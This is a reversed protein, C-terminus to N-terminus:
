TSMQLHRPATSLSTPIYVAVGKRLIYGQSFRLDDKTNSYVIEAYDDTLKVIEAKDPSLARNKDATYDFYIGSSGLINTTTGNDPHFMKNARGSKDINLTIIGNSMTGVLGDLSATMEQASICLSGLCLGSLFLIKKM